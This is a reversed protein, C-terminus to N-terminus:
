SGFKDPPERSITSFIGPGFLGSFNGESNMIPFGGMIQGYFSGQIFPAPNGLVFGAPVHEAACDPAPDQGTGQVMLLWFHKNWAASAGQLVEVFKQKHPMSLFAANGSGGWRNSESSIVVPDGNFDDCGIEFWRRM